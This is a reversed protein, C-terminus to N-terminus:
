IYIMAIYARIDDHYIAYIKMIYVGQNRSNVLCNLISWFKDPLFLKLSKMTWISIMTWVFDTESSIQTLIKTKPLLLLPNMGKNADLM